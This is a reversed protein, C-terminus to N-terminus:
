AIFERAPNVSVTIGAKAFAVTGALYGGVCRPCM